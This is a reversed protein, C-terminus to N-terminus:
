RAPSSVRFAVSRDVGSDGFKGNLDLVYEGPPLGNAAYAFVVRRTAEPLVADNPLRGALIVGPPLEVEETGAKEIIGTSSDGPFESKRWIAYSGTCRSTANGTNRLQLTADGERAQIDLLEGSRQVPGVHGYVAGGFRFVTRLTTKSVEVGPLPQEDFWVMARHEGQTLAVAPRAAIRVVQNQGAKIVFETPNIVLWGDLSQETTPAPSVKGDVDMAWNAASVKVAKDEKTYNFLRFSHAAAPGDLSVDLIQPSLGVQAHAALASLFLTVFLCIRRM